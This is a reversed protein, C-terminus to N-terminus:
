ASTCGDYDTAIGQMLGASQARHGASGCSEALSSIAPGFKSVFSTTASMLSEYASTLSEPVASPDVLYSASCVETM